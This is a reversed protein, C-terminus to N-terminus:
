PQRSITPPRTPRWGSEDVYLEFIFFLAPNTPSRYAPLAEGETRGDDPPTMNRLIAASRM